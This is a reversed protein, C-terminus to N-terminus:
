VSLPLGMYEYTLNEGSFIDTLGKLINKLYPRVDVTYRVKPPYLKADFQRHCLTQEGLKIYINFYEPGNTMSTDLVSEDEMIQNMNDMMYIVTKTKLDYSLEEKVEYLFDYLEISNKSTPNYGKVNYFRQVIIKDNLTLLLEMKTIEQEKM